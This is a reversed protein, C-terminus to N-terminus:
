NDENDHITVGAERLGKLRAKAFANLRAIAYDVITFWCPIFKDRLRRRSRGVAQVGDARPMADIGADLWPIDVGEKMQAFTGLIIKHTKSQRLMKRACEQIMIKKRVKKGKKNIIHGKYIFGTYYGIQKDSVGGKILMTHLTQLQDVRDSMIVIRRGKRYLNLAVDAIIRNRGPHAALWGLQIAWPAQMIRGTMFYPSPIVYCHTEMNDDRAEVCVEGFYDEVLKWAGDSRRPTATLALKYMAPFLSLSKSFERSGMRHAEDWIVFGFHERFGDPLHRDILNHVVAVVVQRGQWPFYGQQVIGTEMPTLGLHLHAEDEWQHALTRSPVIVLLARGCQAATNLGTVTKGSGTNAKVSAAFNLRVATEVEEFFVDQGPPAKEHFPDPFRRAKLPAGECCAYHRLYSKPLTDLWAIGGAIPIGLRKQKDLVCPDIPEPDEGEYGRPHATFEARIAAEGYRKVLSPPLWVMSSIEIM